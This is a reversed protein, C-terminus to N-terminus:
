LGLLGVIEDETAKRPGSMIDPTLVYGVGYRPLQDFHYGPGFAYMSRSQNPLRLVVKNVMNDVLNGPIGKVTPLQTCLLLSVRASRGMFAISSLREVANRLAKSRTLFQMEDVIVYMPSGQYEEVGDADMAAFRMMMSDYAHTCADDIDRETRAYSEVCELGRYRGLEVRKPDVLVLRSDGRAVMSDVLRKELHSKGAGTTGVIMTHQLM